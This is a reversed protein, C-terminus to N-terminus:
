FLQFLGNSCPSPPLSLVRVCWQLLFEAENPSIWGDRCLQFGGWDSLDRSRLESEIASADWPSAQPRHSATSSATGSNVPNETNPQHGLQGPVPRDGRVAVPVAAGGSSPAHVGVSPVDTPVPDGQPGLCSEGEATLLLATLELDGAATISARM